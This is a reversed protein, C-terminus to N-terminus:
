NSQDEESATPRESKDTTNLDNIGRNLEQNTVYELLAEQETMHPNRRLIEDVPSTINLKIDTLLQDSESSMPLIQEEPWRINVDNVLPLGAISLVMNALNLEYREFRTSKEKFVQLLPFWRVVLERGSERGAEKSKGEVSIKPVSSTTYIRDELWNITELTEKLKPQLNLVNASAGEPINVARGPHVVVTEGSKFGSFVIPTGAQMKVTYGLHTLLTNIQHNLRRTHSAVPYGIYQDHVEEGKFNVFPLFGLPNEEQGILQSGEYLQVSTPTWVQQQLIREVQPQRGEATNINPDVLRDVIRLLSIADATSPDQDAGLTSFQTADYVALRLHSPLGEDYIPHVLASGTLESLLDVKQLLADINNESYVNELFAISASPGDWERVLPRSYLMSTRKQIIPKTLNLVIPEVDDNMLVIDAEQKGYYYDKNKQAEERREKEELNFNASLAKATLSVPATDFGSLIETAM